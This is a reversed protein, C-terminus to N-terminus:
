KGNDYLHVFPVVEARVIDKPRFSEEIKVRDKDSARVDQKRGGCRSDVSDHCCFPLSSYRIMGRPYERSVVSANRAVSGKKADLRSQTTIIDVYAAQKTIRTVRGIVITGISLTALFDDEIRGHRQISVNGNEGQAIYGLTASYFHGADEYVNLGGGGVASSPGAANLLTGPIVAHSM